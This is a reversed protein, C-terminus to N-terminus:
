IKYKVPKTYLEVRKGHGGYAMHIHHGYYKKIAM